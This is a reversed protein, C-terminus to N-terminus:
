NTNFIIYQEKTLEIFNMITININKPINFTNRIDKITNNLNFIIDNTVMNISGTTNDTRFYIYWYSNM